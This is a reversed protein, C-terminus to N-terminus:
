ARPTFSRPEAACSEQFMLNLEHDLDSGSRAFSSELIIAPSSGLSQSESTGVKSAPLSTEVRLADPSTM